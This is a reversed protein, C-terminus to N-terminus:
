PQEDLHDPPRGDQQQVETGSERVKTDGTDQSGRYGSGGKDDSGTRQVEQEVQENSLLGGKNEKKAM